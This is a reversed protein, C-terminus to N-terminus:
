LGSVSVVATPYQIAPGGNHGDFVKIERPLQVEGLDIVKMIAGPSLGPNNANRTMKYQGVNANGARQGVVVAVGNPIFPTFTGYPPASIVSGDVLYGEDYVVVNPLDDMTFLTNMEQISNFTGFGGTRRGSVDTANTNALLNNATVRNMYIKAAAGFNVSHGRALLQIAHLNALPTATAFTSWPTAAAYTQLAFSDTHLIAGDPGPVSFTGTTLLTWLIAEIRDLRRQLLLDQAEMVLDTINIPSAFTGYQRRLTLEIEDIPIYEGYVGPQMQYRKAGVKQVKPFEANLGRVQQLGTFSDLQEWMVLAADANVIPFDKFIPRNEVLRPLKDQMIESLEASSPYIVDAM